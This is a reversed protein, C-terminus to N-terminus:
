ASLFYNHCAQTVTALDLHAPKGAYRASWCVQEVIDRPYCPRLPHKLEGLLVILEDVVAADYLLKHEECTRRFIEQFEKATVTDVKVKSPIRRLFAEDALTTPDLNTAFAVFLDFPVEFKKGGALMLFDIRRDLPVIWRNFLEEPRLRQRGFDDIILIGNNAKMQLPASYFKRIADFRLDLMELTLEGGVVIRPRRCRVWRTDGEGAAPGEIREHAQGDYVAIIQGDVEVAYPIWVSDRYVAPIAQAISTKGTGTPGYLFITRGSVLATGVQALVEKSLVLHRLAREVDEPRIDVDRVSQSRVRAVYDRLSVPAPGAYQNTSLLEFARDRGPSTIAIQHVREALGKVECLQEKRLRRFIEQVIPFSLHLGDALELLSMEGQWYLIKLALDELLSRRIGIEEITQPVAVAETIM